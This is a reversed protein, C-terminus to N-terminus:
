ARLAPALSQNRQDLRTGMLGMQELDVGVDETSAGEFVGGNGEAEQGADRERRETADRVGATEERLDLVRRQGLEVGHNSSIGPTIRGLFPKVQVSLHPPATLPSIRQCRRKTYFRTCLHRRQRTAQLNVSPNHSVPM